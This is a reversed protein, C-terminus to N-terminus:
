LAAEPYFKRVFREYTDRPALADKMNTFDDYFALFIIAAECDEEWWTPKPCYGSGTANRAWEPLAAQRDPSLHIGGHSATSVFTIGPAYTLPASNIIGWPSPDGIKLATSM